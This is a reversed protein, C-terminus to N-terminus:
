TYKKYWVWLTDVNLRVEEQGTYLTCHVWRAARPAYCINCAAPSVTMCAPLMPLPSLVIYMYMPLTCPVHVCHRHVNCGLILSVYVSCKYM